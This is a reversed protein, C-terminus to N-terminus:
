TTDFDPRALGSWDADLGFHVHPSTSIGAQAEAGLVDVPALLAPQTPLDVSDDLTNWLRPVTTQVTWPALGAISVVQPVHSNQWGSADIWFGEEILHERRQASASPRHVSAGYLVREVEYDDTPFMTNSQVAVVLPADLDGYRSVKAALVRRIGSVNDVMTAEGQGAVGLASRPTGRAEFRLPIAHFELSWGDDEWVLSPLSQFGSSPEAEASVVDPDLTGIWATLRRRLSRTPLPREGVSYTSLALSFDQITLESLVRHLDVLRREESIESTDRGVSTAELYFVEDDLTM